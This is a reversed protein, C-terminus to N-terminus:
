WIMIKTLVSCTICLYNLKRQRYLTQRDTQRDNTNPTKETMISASLIFALCHSYPVTEYLHTLIITLTAKSIM